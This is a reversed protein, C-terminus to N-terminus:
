LCYLLFTNKLRMYFQENEFEQIKAEKIKAKIFNLNDKKKNINKELKRFFFQGFPKLVM